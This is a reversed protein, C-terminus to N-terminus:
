KFHNIQKFIFLESQMMILGLLNEQIELDITDTLYM